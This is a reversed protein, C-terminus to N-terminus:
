GSESTSLKILLLAGLNHLILIEEPQWERQRNDDFGVFGMVDGKHKLPLLIMSQLMPTDSEETLRDVMQRPLQQTSGTIVMQQSRLIQDFGDNALNVRQFLHRQPAIEKACWEFRNSFISAEDPLFVFIRQLSFFNGIAHLIHKMSDEIEPEDLMIETCHHLLSFFGPSISCTGRGAMWQSFSLSVSGQPMPTRKGPTDFCALNEQLTAYDMPKSYYYGQVLDVGNAVVCRLEDSNEVGECVLRMGNLHATESIVYLSYQLYQNTQIDSIFNRDTKVYQAPLNKLHNFSSYGSGFDDLAFTIGLQRLEQITTCTAEDFSMESSETIELNLKQPPYGHVALMSAITEGFDPRTIQRASINVSLFFDKREHLGLEISITIATELVWTGLSGILGLAEVEGIFKDPPVPGVGPRNWRCLAELGKWMGTIPDVIPQFNLLFGVMGKLICNKLDMQLRIYERAQVDLERNFTVIHHTRRAEDLCREFLDILNQERVYDDVPIVAMSASVFLELVDDNVELTWPEKTRRLARQAYRLVKERPWGEILLCFMDGDIRYLTKGSNEIVWNAVANLLADGVTHSYSFNIKRLAEIDYCFFCTTDGDPDHVTALDQVLQEFGPLALLRTTHKTAHMSWQHTKM